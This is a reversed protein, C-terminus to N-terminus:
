FAAWRSTADMAVTDSPAAAMAAFTTMATTTFVRADHARAVEPVTPQVYRPAAPQLTTCSACLAALMALTTLPFRQQM